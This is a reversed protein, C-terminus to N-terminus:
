KDNNIQNLIVKVKDELEELTGNNDLYVDIGEYADMATESPHEKKSKIGQLEYMFEKQKEYEYVDYWLNDTVNVGRCVKILYGGREKIADAENPFRVDTVIWKPPIMIREGYDFYWRTSIFDAFLAKVWVDSDITDRMGETGVMQLLERYSMGFPSMQKKFEQDEFKIPDVGCLIGCIQKLKGAFKKIEWGPELEQIIRGVEDKGVGARGTIGILTTM